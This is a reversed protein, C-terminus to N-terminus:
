NKRNNDVDFDNIQSAGSYHNNFFLNRLNGKVDERLSLLGVLQLTSFKKFQDYQLNLSSMYNRKHEQKNAEIINNLANSLHSKSKYDGNLDLHSSSFNRLLQSNKKSSFDNHKIEFLLSGKM